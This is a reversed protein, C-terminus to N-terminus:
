PNPQLSPSRSHLTLLPATPFLGSLRMKAILDYGIKPHPLMASSNSECKLKAFEVQELLKNSQVMREVTSENFIQELVAKQFREATLLWYYCYHTISPYVKQRKLAIGEALKDHLLTAKEAESITEGIESLDFSGEDATSISRDEGKEGPDGQERKRTAMQVQLSAIFQEEQAKLADYSDVSKTM